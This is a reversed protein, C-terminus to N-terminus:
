SEPQEDIADIENMLKRMRRTDDEDRKRLVENHLTEWADCLKDNHEKAIDYQKRYM